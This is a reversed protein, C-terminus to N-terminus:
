LIEYNILTANPFIQAFLAKVSENKGTSYYEIIKIEHKDSIFELMKKELDRSLARCSLSFLTLIDREVGLAGVLGLDSYKDSISVSYLKYLKSEAKKSLEAVTYRKGNTCKNTRQSLESIRNYEIPTAKIIDIKMELAQLYDDFKHYQSKLKERQQNTRYTNNRLNINNIDVNNQLNFCSIKEYVNDRNYLIVTIQPLMTKVFEVEFGSDDIFVMSDLGIGLVESIRKINDAKNDWNVQFYSINEEKLIMENHKNFMEIVNSLDNKSCVALIVGHYYLTLLFRQFDKFSRGLGYNGLSVDEIGDESLIGGWLVNDCDLVICKKSVGKQVLYQKYIENCIESILLQSYPANWRYKGKSNYVNNIGINAILHKLDVYVDSPELMSIVRCNINDILSGCVPIAGYLIDLHLYYDEFGFWLIPTQIKTKIYQYIENCKQVCMEIYSEGIQKGSCIDNIFDPFISEFNLAIIFIDSILFKDLSEDFLYEEYNVLSVNVLLSSSAFVTTIYTNFYPEFTINSLMTINLKDFSAKKIKNRQKQIENFKMNKNLAEM